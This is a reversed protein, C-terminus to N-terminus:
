IGLLSHQKCDGCHEAGDAPVVFGRHKQASNLFIICGPRDRRMSTIVPDLITKRLAPLIPADPGEAGLCM